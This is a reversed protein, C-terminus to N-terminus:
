RSRGRNRLHDALKEVRAVRGGPRVTRVRARPESRGSRQAPATAPGITVVSAHVPPSSATRPAFQGVARGLEALVEAFDIPILLCGVCGAALARSRFEASHFGTILIIPPCGVGYRCRLRHVVDLTDDYSTTALMIADPSCQDAVDITNKGGECEVIEYEQTELLIALMRRADEYHDALLIRPHRAGEHRASADDRNGQAEQRQVNATHVSAAACAM